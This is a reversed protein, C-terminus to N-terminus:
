DWLLAAFDVVPVAALASSAPTEVPADATRLRGEDDEVVVPFV